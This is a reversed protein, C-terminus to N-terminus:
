TAGPFPLSPFVWHLFIISVAHLNNLAKTFADLSLRPCVHHLQRYLELVDLSFAITPKEPSAGLFGHQVLTVNTHKTSALHSFIRIECGKSIILTGESGLLYFM